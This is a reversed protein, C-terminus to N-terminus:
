QNYVYMYTSPISAPNKGLPHQVSDNGKIYLPMINPSNTRLTNNVAPNGEM